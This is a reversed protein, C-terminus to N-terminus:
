VQNFFPKSKRDRICVFSTNTSSILGRGSLVGGLYLSRSLFLLEEESLERSTGSILFGGVKARMTFSSFTDVEDSLERSIGSLVGGLYLSRSLFSDSLLEEESLGRSTDM